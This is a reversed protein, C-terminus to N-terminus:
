HGPCPAERGRERQCEGWHASLWAVLRADLWRRDPGCRSRSVFGLHGGSGWLELTLHSPVVATQFPEAPIFPDDAAHVVLGPVAIRPLLPGASSRQHYDDAGAFGYRPATYHEDFDLLSGVRSFDVPGLEPFAAHHRAIMRRLTRVFNRDYARAAPRQMYRCSAGLDIPPNAALVADLGPVPEDPAEAALKLVLNGGLSFGVLALASRPSRAAMWAAVSRLDRSRGAHYTQRALGFGSGAGRLNMRVVRLGRELFRAATRVMYSSRACGGLGHVMLVQPCGPKWAVPTSELVSVHDGDELEVHHEVADLAPRRGPFLNGVLTQLHGGALWPHPEFPRITPSAVDRELSAVPM